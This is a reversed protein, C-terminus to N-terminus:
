SRGTVSKRRNLEGSNRLTRLNKCLRDVSLVDIEFTRDMKEEGRNEKKRSNEKEKKKEGRNKKMMKTLISKEKRM